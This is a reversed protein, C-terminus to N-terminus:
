YDALIFKAMAQYREKELTTSNFIHSANSHYVIKACILQRCAGQAFRDTAKLFSEADKKGISIFISPFYTPEDPIKPFAVPSLLIAGRWLAPKYDVLASVVRTRVSSGTIYVRHPDINPNKLMEDYVTLINDMGDRNCTVYFIGANALFQAEQTNQANSPQDLVVPYKKQPDLQPPVLVSYPVKDKGATRNIRLVMQGFDFSQVEGSVVSRLTRNTIDYEWIGTAERGSKAFAYVKDKKPAVSYADVNGETFLNTRLGADKPEIVLVQSLGNSVYAIGSDGLIWQGKLTDAYTLRTLNTTANPDFRYLYRNESDAANPDGLCFLFQGNTPSYDLWKINANTLQILQRTRGASLDLEWIKNRDAYAIGHDSTRTIAYPPDQYLPYSQIERLRNNKLDLLYLSHVCDMLVLSDNGLWRGERIEQRVHFSAQKADDRLSFAKKLTGNDGDCIAITQDYKNDLALAVYRDDPSWGFLRFSNDATSVAENIRGMLQHQGTVLNLLFFGIGNDTERAYVLLTGSHDVLPADRFTGWSSIVNMMTNFHKPLAASSRLHLGAILLGFLAAGIGWGLLLRKFATFLPHGRSALSLPKKGETRLPLESFTPKPPPGPIQLPRGCSPCRVFRGSESVDVVIHQGCDPNSCNFKINTSSPVQLVTACAPCQLSRGAMSEDVSIRRRCAPNSCNFKIDM